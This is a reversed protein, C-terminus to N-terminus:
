KKNNLIIESLIDEGCYDAITYDLMVGYDNCDLLHSHLSLAFTTTYSNIVNHYFLYNYLECLKWIVSKTDSLLGDPAPIFLYISLKVSPSNTGFGDHAKKWEFDEIYTDELFLFNIATTVEQDTQTLHFLGAANFTQLQDIWINVASVTYKTSALGIAKTFSLVIQEESTLYEKARTGFYALTDDYLKYLYM